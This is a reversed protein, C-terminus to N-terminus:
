VWNQARSGEALKELLRDSARRKPMARQPAAGSEEGDGLARPRAGAQRLLSIAFWYGRGVASSRSSAVNSATDLGPASVAFHPFVHGEDLAPGPARWDHPAPQTSIAQTAAAFSLALAVVFPSTFACLM